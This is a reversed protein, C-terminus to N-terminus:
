PERYLWTTSSRAEPSEAAPAARSPSPTEAQGRRCAASSVYGYGASMLYIAGIIGAPMGIIGAVAGSGGCDGRHHDSECAWKEAFVGGMIAAGALGVVLDLTPVVYSACTSESGRYRGAGGVAIFSCGGATLLAWLAISQRCIM